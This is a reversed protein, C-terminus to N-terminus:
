SKKCWFQYMAVFTQPNKKEFKAWNDLETMAPDKRFKKRYKRATAGGVQFGEFTLGLTQLAQRIQPITFRHEQEHFLLDRCEPLSYYDRAEVLTKYHKKKLHKPADQRFRRIGESDPKYDRAAIAKRAEVVFRRAHESYLGIRMRGGEKLLSTLVEWGKLPADMHHLVGSAAIFDFREDLAGLGLIDAQAFRVNTLGFKKARHRAYALSAVSLDVALVEANPFAAALDCAERGTGCGAVLIKPAGDRLFGERAEVHGRRSLALWKPYPSEEYQARVKRSVPDEVETLVPIDEALAHRERVDAIQLKVLAALEGKGFKTLLTGANALEHLPVYCSLVAVDPAAPAKEVKARLADALAQERGSVDFLYDTYFCAQGLAQAIRTRPEDGLAHTEGCTEDELLLCRLRSLFLEFGSDALRIRCLGELFMPDLLANKSPLADFQARARDEDPHALARYVPGFARDNQLISRWASEVPQFDVNDFSFSEAIVKRYSPVPVRFSLGSVTEIFKVITERAAPKAEFARVLYNLAHPKYGLSNYVDSAAYYAPLFGPDDAIAADFKELAKDWGGASLLSRGEELLSAAPKAEKEM